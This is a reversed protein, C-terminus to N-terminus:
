VESSLSKWIHSPVSSQAGICNQLYEIYQVCCMPRHVRGRVEEVVEGGGEGVEEGRVEGDGGERGDRGGRM